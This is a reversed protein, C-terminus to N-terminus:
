HWQHYYQSVDIIDLAMTMDIAIAIHDVGNVIIIFNIIDLASQLATLAMLSLVSPTAVDIGHAISNIGNIISIDVVDLAVAVDIGNTM